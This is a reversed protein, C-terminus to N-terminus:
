EVIYSAVLDYNNADHTHTMFSLIAFYVVYSCFLFVLSLDVLYRDIKLVMIMKNDRITITVM